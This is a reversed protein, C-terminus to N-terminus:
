AVTRRGVLAMVTAGAGSLALWPLLVFWGVLPMFLSLVLARGGRQIRPALPEAAASEGPGSGIRSALGSAGGVALLVPPTLAILSWPLQAKFVILGAFLFPVWVVLGILTAAVPRAYAKRCREVFQPSLAALVQWQATLSLYGMSLILVIMLWNSLDPTM